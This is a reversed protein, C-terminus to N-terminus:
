NWLSSNVLWYGSIGVAFVPDTGDMPIERVSQVACNTLNFVPFTAADPYLTGDGLSADTEMQQKYLTALQQTKLLHITVDFMMYPEPSRVAGAMSPLYLTTQGQPAFRIGMRGLFSATVNLNANSPWVISGRLRNLVGQPILPNGPM